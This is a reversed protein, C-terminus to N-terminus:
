GDLASLKFPWGAGKEGWGGGSAKSILFSGTGLSPALAATKRLAQERERVRELFDREQRERERM